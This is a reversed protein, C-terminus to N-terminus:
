ETMARSKAASDYLGLKVFLYEIFVFLASILATGGYSLSYAVTVIAAAPYITTNLILHGLLNQAWPDVLLGTKYAYSDFIGLVIFEGIWTAGAIFLFSVILTSVKYINRKMYITYTAIGVGISALCIYWFLNTM